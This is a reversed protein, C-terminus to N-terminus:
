GSRLDPGDRQTSVVDLLGDHFGGPGKAQGKGARQKRAAELALLLDGDVGVAAHRDNRGPPGAIAAIQDLTVGHRRHGAAPQDLLGDVGVLVALLRVTEAGFRRKREAVGQRRAEGRGAVDVGVHRQLKRRRQAHVRPSVSRVVVKTAHVRRALPSRQAPELFM